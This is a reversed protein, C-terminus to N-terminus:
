CLEKFCFSDGCSCRIEGIEGISTPIFVYSYRGGIAGAYRNGDHKEETHKNIWKQIEEYEESSINFSIKPM